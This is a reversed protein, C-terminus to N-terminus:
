KSRVFSVIAFLLGVLPGVIFAGTMAAETSRDHQNSSLLYVLGVGGFLGVVYGVVGLGLSLASRKLFTMPHDRKLNQKTLPVASAAPRAAGGTALAM